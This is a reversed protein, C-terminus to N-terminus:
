WVKSCIFLEERRVCGSGLALDLAEGVEEENQYVAACDIHRYGAQLAEYVAQRVQGGEAKWTGLGVLPLEHGDNLRARPVSVQAYKLRAAAAQAAPRAALERREAAQACQWDHGPVVKCTSFDLVKLRGVEAATIYKNIWQPADSTTGM